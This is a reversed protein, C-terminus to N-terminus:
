LMVDPYAPVAHSLCPINRHFKRFCESYTLCPFAADTSARATTRTLATTRTFAASPSRQWRWDLTSALSRRIQITPEGVYVNM